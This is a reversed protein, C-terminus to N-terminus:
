DSYEANASTETILGDRAGDDIEDNDDVPISPKVDL